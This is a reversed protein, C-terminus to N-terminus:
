RRIRQQIIRGFERVEEIKFAAMLLAYVGAGAIFAATLSAFLGATGTLVGYILRFLYYAPVLAILTSVLSFLGVQVLRGLRFAGFRRRYLYLLAATQLMAVLSTSLAIGSHPSFIWGYQDSLNLARHIAPMWSIFAADAFYNIVITAAAVAFPTLSDRRAYFARNILNLMGFALLGLSYSVLPGATLLSDHYTFAGREFLLRILPLGFVIFFFQVPLMIVTIGRLGYALYRNFGAPDEESMKRSLSPFLVTSIAIGFIGAPVLWVRTAYGLAAISGTQLTSAFRTDVINNINQTAASAVVPILLVFFEQVGPHKLDVLFRFRFKKVLEPLQFAIQVAAAAVYGAALSYIGYAGSFGAVSGIIVANWIVPSISPIFFVDYSNLIGMIIGSLAMFVLSPFMVRTLSVSLAYAEGSLEFGPALVRILYPAFLEGAATVAVLIITSLTIISSALRHAERERKQALYSSFVPIFAAAIVADALFLRFLNPLQVAVRYADVEIGTGFYAAVVMERVYGIVRSLATAFMVLATARYLRGRGRPSVTQREQDNLHNDSM